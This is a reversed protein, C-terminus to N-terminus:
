SVTRISEKLRDFRETNGPLKAQGLKWCTSYTDFFQRNGDQILEVVKEFYEEFHHELIHELVCTSIAARVDENESSGWKVVLPWIIEPPDECRTGLAIAAQRRTHEDSSALDADIQSLDLTM